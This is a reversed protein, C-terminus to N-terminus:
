AWMVLIAAVSILTLGLVEHRKAKQKLWFHSLIITLLVELQGVTKVYAVHQISMASFWCISGLCSFISTCLTRGSHKKLRIFTDGDKLAIYTTLMLTQISLVWLLVWAASHPFSLKLLLSAERVFLSTMAFCTGCALGILVTKTSLEGKKGGGSLIFVAVAGVTVGFWGLATLRSGFFLAGLVGAALAESKALGAGVSFNKQKFLVVMLSTAAIQLLAAIFVTLIFLPTFTPMAAPSVWYILILYLAAIPAAFLFRALTVGATGVHVSLQSQLGNRFTQMVVAGLTLFIWNM